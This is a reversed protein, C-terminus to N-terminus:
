NRGSEFLADYVDSESGDVDSVRIEFPTATGSLTAPDVTIFLRLQELRDPGIDVPFVEYPLGCEELMISVKQGNPTPWRHTGGQSSIATAPKITLLRM